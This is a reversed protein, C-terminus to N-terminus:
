GQMQQALMVARLFWFCVFLFISPVETSAWKMCSYTSPLHNLQLIGWMNTFVLRTRFQLSKQLAAEWHSWVLEFCFNELNFVTLTCSPRSWVAKACYFVFLCGVLKQFNIITCKYSVRWLSFPSATTCAAWTAWEPFHALYPQIPTQAAQNVSNDRSM